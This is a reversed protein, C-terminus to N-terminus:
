RARGERALRADAETAAATIRALFDAAGRLEGPDAERLTAAIETGAFAPFVLAPHPGEDVGDPLERGSDPVEGM